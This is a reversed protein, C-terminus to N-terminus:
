RESENEEESSSDATEETEEKDQNDSETVFKQWKGNKQKWKMSFRDEKM